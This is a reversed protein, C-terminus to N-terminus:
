CSVQVQLPLTTEYSTDLTSEEGGLTAQCEHIPEMMGGQVEESVQRSQDSSANLKVTVSHCMSSEFIPLGFNWLEDMDGELPEVPSKVPELLPGSLIADLDNVIFSSHQGSPSVQKQCSEPQCEDEPVESFINGVPIKCREENDSLREATTGFPNLCLIDDVDFDFAPAINLVKECKLSHPWNFNEGCEVQESCLQSSVTQKRECTIAPDHRAPPTDVFCGLDPSLAQPRFVKKAPTKFSEDFCSDDLKRKRECNNLVEFKFNIFPSCFQHVSAKQDCAIMRSYLSLPKLHEQNAPKLGNFFANQTDANEMDTSFLCLM